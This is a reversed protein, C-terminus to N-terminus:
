TSVNDRHTLTPINNSKTLDSSSLTRNKKGAAHAGGEGAPGGSSRGRVWLLWTLIWAAINCTSLREEIGPAEVFGSALYVQM